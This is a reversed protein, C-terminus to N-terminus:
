TGYRESFEVDRSGDWIPDVDGCRHYRVHDGNSAFVKLNYIANNFVDRDEHHVVMGDRLEFYRSVIARGIRNGYRRESGSWPRGIHELWAFYCSHDCYAYKTNRARSPTRELEKGCWRCDLKIRRDKGLYRGNKKLWKWLATRSVGYLRAMDTRSLLNEDHIQLIEDSYEDLKSPRGGM